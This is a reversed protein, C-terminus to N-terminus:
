LDEQDFNRDNDLGLEFRPQSLAELILYDDWFDFMKRIEGIQEARSAQDMVPVQAAAEIM